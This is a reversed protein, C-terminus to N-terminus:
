ANRRMSSLSAASVGAADRPGSFRHPLELLAARIDAASVPRAKAEFALLSLAHLNHRRISEKSSKM